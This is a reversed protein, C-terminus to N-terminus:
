RLCFTKFEDFMKQCLLSVLKKNCGGVVRGDINEVARCLKTTSSVIIEEADMM